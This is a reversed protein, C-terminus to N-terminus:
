LLLPDIITELAAKANTQISEIIQQCVTADRIQIKQATRLKTPSPIWHTRMVWLIQNWLDLQSEQTHQTRIWTLHATMTNDVALEM